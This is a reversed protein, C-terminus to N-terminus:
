YPIFSIILPQDMRLVFSSLRPSCHLTFKGSTYPLLTLTAKFPHHWKMDCSATFCFHPRLLYTQSLLSFRHEPDWTDQKQGKGKLHGICWRCSAFSCHLLEFCVRELSYQGYSGSRGPHSHRQEPASCGRRKKIRNNSIRNSERDKKQM